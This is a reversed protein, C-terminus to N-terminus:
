CCFSLDKEEGEAALIEAIQQSSYGRSKLRKMRERPSNGKYLNIPPSNRACRWTQVETLKVAKRDARKM